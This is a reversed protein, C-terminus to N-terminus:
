LVIYDTQQELSHAMMKADEKREKLEDDYKDTLYIHRLKTAGINKKFVKNLIKTIKNTKFPSGDYTVLFFYDKDGKNPHFELYNKIIKFLEKPIDIIQTGYHKKTKYNNFIMKKNDIDIYNFNENSYDENSIKLHIYENRRPPILVYLSLVMYQIHKMYDNKNNIVKIDNVEKKLENHVEIIQKWDMWDEDDKKMKEKINKEEEILVGYFYQQYKKHLKEKTKFFSLVVIISKIYNKRTSLSLHKIRDLVKDMDNLFTLSTFPKNDHLRQLNNIYFTITSPKLNRESENMKKILKKIFKM